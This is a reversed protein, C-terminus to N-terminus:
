SVFITMFITVSYYFIGLYAHADVEQSVQKHMHKQAQAQQIAAQAVAAAANTSDAICYLYIYILFNKVGLQLESIYPVIFHWM